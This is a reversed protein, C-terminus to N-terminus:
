KEKKMADFYGRLRAYEAEPMRCVEMVFDRRSEPIAVTDSSAYFTALDIDFYECIGIVTETKPTVIKGNKLNYLSSRSLKSEQTIRYVTTGRENLLENFRRSFDFAQKM